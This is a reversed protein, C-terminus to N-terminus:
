TALKCVTLSIAIGPISVNKLAIVEIGIVVPEPSYPQINSTNIRNFTDELDIFGQVGLNINGKSDGINCGGELFCPM